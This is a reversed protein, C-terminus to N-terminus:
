FKIFEYKGDSLTAQFFQIPLGMNVCILLHLQMLVAVIFKRKTLKRDLTYKNIMIM